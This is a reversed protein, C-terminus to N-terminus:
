PINDNPYPIAVSVFYTPPIAVQLLGVYICVYVCVVHPYSLSENPLFLLSNVPSHSLFSLLPAHIHDYYIKYM